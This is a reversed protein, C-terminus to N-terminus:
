QAPLAKRQAELIPLGAETPIYITQNPTTKLADIYLYRLYGENGKLSDGIIRNAEAM